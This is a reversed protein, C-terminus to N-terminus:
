AAVEGQYERRVEEGRDAEIKIATAIITGLFGKPAHVALETLRAGEQLQQSILICTDTALEVLDSTEKKAAFFIERVAGDTDFGCRVYFRREVRCNTEDAPRTADAPERYVVKECRSIRRNPFQFKQGEAGPM